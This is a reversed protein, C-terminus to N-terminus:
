PISIYLLVRGSEKTSCPHKGDECNSDYCKQINRFNRPVGLYFFPSNNMGGVKTM